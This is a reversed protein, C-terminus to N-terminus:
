LKNPRLLIKFCNANIEIEWEKVTLVNRKSDLDIKMIQKKRRCRIGNKTSSKSSLLSSVYSTTMIHHISRQQKRASNHLGDYKPTTQWRVKAIRGFIHLGDFKPTESKWVKAYDDPKLVVMPSQLRVYKIGLYPLVVLSYALGSNRFRM